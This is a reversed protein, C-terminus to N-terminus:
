ENGTAFSAQKSLFDTTVWHLFDNMVRQFLWLDMFNPSLNVKLAKATPKLSKSKTKSKSNFFKFNNLTLM